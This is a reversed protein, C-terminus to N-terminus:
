FAGMLAVDQYINHLPKQDSKNSSVQSAGNDTYALTKAKATDIVFILFPDVVVPEMNSVTPNSCYVMRVISYM